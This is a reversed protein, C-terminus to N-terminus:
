VVECPATLPMDLALCFAAPAVYMSNFFDPQKDLFVVQRTGCFAVKRIDEVFGIQANESQVMIAYHCKATFLVEKLRAILQLLTETQPYTDVEHHDIVVVVSGTSSMVGAIIEAVTRVPRFVFRWLPFQHDAELEGRLGDVAFEFMNQFDVVATENILLFVNVNM